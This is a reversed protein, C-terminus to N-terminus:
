ERWGGEGGGEVRKPTPIGIKERDLGGIGEMSSRGGGGRPRGRHVVGVVSHSGQSIRVLQEQWAIPLVIEGHRRRGYWEEARRNRAVAAVGATRSSGSEGQANGRRRVGFGDITIPRSGERGGSIIGRLQLQWM